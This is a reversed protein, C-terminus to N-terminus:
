ESATQNQFIIYVRLISLALILKHRRKSTITGATVERSLQLIVPYFEDIQWYHWDPYIKSAEFFHMLDVTLMLVGWVMVVVFLLEPPDVVSAFLLDVSVVAELKFWSWIFFVVWYVINFFTVIVFVYSIIELFGIEVELLEVFSITTM